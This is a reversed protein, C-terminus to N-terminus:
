FAPIAVGIFDRGTTETESLLPAACARSRPCFAGAALDREWGLGGTFDFNKYRKSAALFEGATRKHGLASQLGVAIEPSLRSENLLRLKLDIGPYLRIPDEIINSVEATQRVSVHLPDIVQVGLSVNVYPALTSTNLRGLSGALYPSYVVARDQAYVPAGAVM